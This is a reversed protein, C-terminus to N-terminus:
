KCLNDLLPSGQTMGMQQAKQVDACALDKQHSQMYYGARNYYLKPNTPEISIAQNMDELAGPMNTLSKIIGRNSYANAFDPKYLIANNLDNLAEKYKQMNIYIAARNSLANPSNPKISIAKDFDALAENIKGENYYANGRNNYAVYADPYKKVVDSFVTVNNKFVTVRTFSLGTMMICIGILLYLLTSSSSIFQKLLFYLAIFIGIGAVYVYHDNMIGYSNPIIQLVLFINIIFFWLGFVVSKHTHRYKWSMFIVTAIFVVALILSPSVSVNKPYPHILSLNFPIILNVIYMMFGYAAFLSKMMFPIETIDGSLNFGKSQQKVLLTIIIFIASLAILWVNRKVSGKINFSQDTLYDILIFTFPLAIAQGKSFLSLIFFLFSYRFYKKEQTDKYNFYHIIAALFFLVYLVDRRGAVYSVSEIQMPHLAFLAGAFLTLWQDKFLKQLVIFLLLCNLLHILLNTILYPKPNLQSFYHNVSFSLATIPVYMGHFEGKTFSHAVNKSNLQINPNETVYVTDDWNNFQNNIGRCFVILTLALIAYHM